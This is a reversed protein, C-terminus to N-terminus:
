RYNEYSRDAVKERAGRSLDGHNRNWELMQKIIGTKEFRRISTYAYVNPTWKVQAGLARARLIFDTVTGQPLNEDFGGIKDFLTRHVGTSPAPPSVKKLRCVLNAVHFAWRVVVGGRDAKGGLVALAMPDDVIEMVQRMITDPTLMTDADIFFLIQGTAAKAGLNRGFSIGSKESEVITVGEVTAAVARTNDTCGNLAVIVEPQPGPYIQGRVSHLTPAIYKEENHAPIIVSVTPWSVGPRFFLAERRLWIVKGVAWVAALLLVIVVCGWGLIGARAIVTSLEDM